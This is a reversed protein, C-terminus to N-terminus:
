QRVSWLTVEMVALCAIFYRKCIIGNRVLSQLPKFVDATHSLSSGSFQLLAAPFLAWSLLDQDKFEWLLWCSTFSFVRQLCILAASGTLVSAIWCIVLVESKKVEHLHPLTLPFIFYMCLEQCQRPNRHWWSYPFFQVSHSYHAPWLGLVSASWFLDNLGIGLCFM